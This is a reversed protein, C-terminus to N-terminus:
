GSRAETIMRRLQPFYEQVQAQPRYPFPAAFLRTEGIHGDLLGFKKTYKRGMLVELTKRYVSCVIKPRFREIKERLITRGAEFDARTLANARPSPRKALDTIGLGNELFTEDHFRGKPDPLIGFTVLM